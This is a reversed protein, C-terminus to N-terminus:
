CIACNEYNIVAVGGNYANTGFSNFTDNLGNNTFNDGDFVVDGHFTSNGVNGTDDGKGARFQADGYFTSFFAWVQDGSDEAASVLTTGIVTAYGIVAIDAGFSTLVKVKGGFWNSSGNVGLRVEDDGAGSKVTVDDTVYLTNALIQDAGGQTTIVLDDGVWVDNLEVIDAGDRGEYQFDKPVDADIVSHNDGGKLNIRLHRGIEVETEDGNLNILALNSSGLPTITLTDAANTGTVKVTGNSLVTVTGAAAAPAAVLVTALMLTALVVSIRARLKM